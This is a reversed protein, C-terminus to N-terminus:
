LYISLTLPTAWQLGQAGGGKPSATAGREGWWRGRKLVADLEGCWWWRTREGSKKRKKGHKKKIKQRKWLTLTRPTKAAAESQWQGQLPLSIPSPLSHSLRHQPRQIPTYRHASPAPWSQPVHSAKTAHQRESRMQELQSKKKKTEMM